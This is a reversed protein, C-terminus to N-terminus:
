TISEVNMVSPLLMSLQFLVQDLSFAQGVNSVNEEFKEKLANLKHM